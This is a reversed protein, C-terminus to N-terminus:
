FKNFQAQHTSFVTNYSIPWAYSVLYPESALFFTFILWHSVTSHSYDWKLPRNNRFLYSFTIEFCKNCNNSKGMGYLFFGIMAWLPGSYCIQAGRCKVNVCVTVFDCALISRLWRIKPQKLRKLIFHLWYTSLNDSTASLTSMMTGVLSNRSWMAKDENTHRM